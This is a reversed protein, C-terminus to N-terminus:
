VIGALVTKMQITQSLSVNSCYGICCFLEGPGIESVIELWFEVPIFIDDKQLGNGPWWIVVLKKCMGRCSHKFNTAIAENSNPIMHLLNFNGKCKLQSWINNVNTGPIWEVLSKEIVIWIRHFNWKVRMWDSTIMNCCFKACAVVACSDHWTCNKYRDSWKYKFSLLIVNEDCKFPSPYITLSIPGLSVNTDSHMYYMYVVIDNAVHAAVGSIQVSLGGM